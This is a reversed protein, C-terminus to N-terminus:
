TGAGAISRRVQELSSVAAARDDEDLFQHSYRARRYRSLLDHVAPAPAHLDSLVRTALEAPTEGVGRVVGAAAAADELRVWCAVIVEDAPGSRLANLGEDIAAAMAADPQPWHEAPPEDRVDPVRRRIRLVARVALALVTAGVLLVAAQALVTLVGDGPRQSPTPSPRVREIPNVPDPVVRESRREVSGGGSGETALPVRDGTAVLAVLVVAAVALGVTALASPRGLGEM